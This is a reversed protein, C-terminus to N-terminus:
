FTPEINTPTKCVEGAIVGYPVPRAPIRPTFLERPRPNTTFRRLLENVVPGCFRGQCHGMGLRTRRKVDNIDRAGDAAAARIDGARVEECRCVVVDDTIIDFIGPRPLCLADLAKGFMVKGRLKKLLPGAVARASKRDMFGLRSAAFVGATRGELLAAQYGKVACMDGAAFVGPISTEMTHDRAVRWYGRAEDYVHECGCLRTLDTAPMLGHGAAVANVPIEKETGKIPRWNSDVRAVVAGEVEGKGRAEILAHSRLVPVRGTLIRKFHDFASVATSFGAGIFLPLAREVVDRIRTPVVMARIRAGAELLHHALLLQLPGAGAILFDSGPATGHKVFRNMGGVTLAGPLTWGPFPISREVAGTAVVLGRGALRVGRGNEGPHVHLSVEKNESVEWVETDLYLDIKGSVWQFDELLARGIRGAFRDGPRVGGRVTEPTLVKGGLSRNEDILAVSAGRKAAEISAGVGAPGGGIIILDFHKM